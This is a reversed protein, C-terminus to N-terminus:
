KVARAKEYENIQKLKRVITSQDVELVEAAKYTTGFMRIAESILKQEVIFKAKRLPLLGKVSVQEEVRREFSLDDPLQEARIVDEKTTVICREIINMMERVNGPWHYSLLQKLADPSFTKNIGYKECFQQTFKHILPLIDARRKRLPPIVIPVVNLRFYLDERFEGREVLQEMDKNTAAIIRVDVKKGKVGGIRTVISDQLFRLLKVQLHLPLDAVEDLLVTGKHAIELLGPKGNKHAGTFAGPEYGFLESELLHDPIAGCNIKVFPGERRLSNQHIYTAVEEKGVGSEGLILVTSDVNAVRYALDLVDQMKKSEAVLGQKGHLHPKLQEKYQETLVRTKNLEERLETLESMNRVNVVYRVNDSDDGNREFPTLSIGLVQGTRDNREVTTVTSKFEMLEAFTTSFGQEEMLQKLPCGEVNAGYMGIMKLFSRNARIIAGDLGIVLVGDYSSQLITELEEKIETVQELQSSIQEIESIDQFVAVGGKIMGDQVIPTRNTIYWRRGVRYKESLRPQGSRVVELLGKPKLVDSIYKGIAEERSVGSIQEAAPNFSTITGFADIAVIGNHAFEFIADLEKLRYEAETAYEQLIDIQCVIGVPTEGDVVLNLPYIKNWVDRLAQDPELYRFRRDVCHKVSLTHDRSQALEHVVHELSVIGEINQERSVYPVGPLRREQMIAQAEGISINETFTLTTEAMVDQVRRKM